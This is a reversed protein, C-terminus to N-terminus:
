IGRGGRFEREERRNKLEGGKLIATRGDDNVSKILGGGKSILTGKVVSGGEKQGKQVGKGRSSAEV